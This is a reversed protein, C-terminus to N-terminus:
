YLKIDRFITIQLFEFLLIMKDIEIMFTHYNAIQNLRIFQMFQWILLREYNEQITNLQRDINEM